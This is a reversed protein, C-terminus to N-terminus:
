IISSTSRAYRTPHPRSFEVVGDLQTGETLDLVIDEGYPERDHRRAEDEEFSSLLVAAIDVLSCGLTATAQLHDVVHVHTIGLFGRDVPQYRPGFPQGQVCDGLKIILNANNLSGRDHFCQTHTGGGGMEM